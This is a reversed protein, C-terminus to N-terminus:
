TKAPPLSAAWAATREASSALRKSQSRTSSSIVIRMRSQPHAPAEGPSIRRSSATSVSGRKPGFYAQPDNLVFVSMLDREEEEVRRRPTADLGPETARDPAGLILGGCM